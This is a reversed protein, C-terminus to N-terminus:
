SINNVNLKIKRYLTMETHNSLVENDYKNENKFSENIFPPSLNMYNMIHCVKFYFLENKMMLKAINCVTSLNAKPYQYLLIPKINSPKKETQMM